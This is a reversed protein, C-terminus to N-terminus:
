PGGRDARGAVAGEGRAMRDRRAGCRPRQDMCGEPGRESNWNVVNRPTPTVPAGRRSCQIRISRRVHSASAKLARLLEGLVLPLLDEIQKWNFWPEIGSRRGSTELNPAVTENGDVIERAKGRPFSPNMCTCALRAGSSTDSTDWCSWPTSRAQTRSRPSTAVRAGRDKGRWAAGPVVACGSQM